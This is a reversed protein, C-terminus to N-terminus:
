KGTAPATTKSTSKDSSAVPAAKSPSAPAPADQKNLEDIQDIVSIEQTGYDGLDSRGCSQFKAQLAIVETRLESPDPSQKGALDNQNATNFATGIKEQLATM